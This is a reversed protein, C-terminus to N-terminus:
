SPYITRVTVTTDPPSFKLANSILNEFIQVTLIDDSFVDIPNGIQENKLTIGKLIAMESYQKTLLKLLFAINVPQPNVPTKGSELKNIDLLKTVIALTKDATSQITLLSEKLDDDTLIDYDEVLMTAYSRLGILPNKLDHSAIGIFENKERHLEELQTHQKELLALAEDRQALLATLEENRTHEIESIVRLKEVEHLASFHNFKTNAAEKTRQSELVHYQHFHSLAKEWQETKEYVEALNQHVVCQEQVIDLKENLELAQQFYGIAVTYNQLGNEIKGQVNLGAAITHNDGVEEALNMAKKVLEKAEDYHATDSCIVSKNLLAIALRPKDGVYTNLAIAQDLEQLAADYKDQKSLAIAKNAIIAAQLATNGMEVAIKEADDQYEISKSYEELHYYVLGINTLSQATLLKVGMKRRLELAELHSELSNSWLGMNMYCSAVNNLTTAVSEVVNNQKYYSLSKQFFELAVSYEGELYLVRAIANQAAHFLLEEGCREAYESSLFGYKKALLNEGKVFAVLSATRWIKSMVSDDFSNNSLEDLLQQLHYEAKQIDTNCLNEIKELYDSINQIDMM